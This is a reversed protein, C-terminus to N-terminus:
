QVADPIVRFIFERDYVNLYGMDCVMYECDALNHHNYNGPASLTFTDSSNAVITRFCWRRSAPYRYALIKGVYQDPTFAGSSATFTNTGIAGTGKPLNRSIQMPWSGYNTTDVVDHTNRFLLYEETNSYLGLAVQTGHTFVNLDYFVPSGDPTVGSNSYMPPYIGLRRSTASSQSTTTINWSMLSYWEGGSAKIGVPCPNGGIWTGVAWDGKTDDVRITTDDVIETIRVGYIAYGNPDVFYNLSGVQMGETSVVNVLADYESSVPATIPSNASGYHNTTYRGMITGWTTNPSSVNDEHNSNIVIVSETCTIYTTYLTSDAKILRNATSHGTALYYDSDNNEDISVTVLRNYLGDSTRTLMVYFPMYKDHDPSRLVEEGSTSNSGMHTWGASEATSIVTAMTKEIRKATTDDVAPDFVVVCGKIM